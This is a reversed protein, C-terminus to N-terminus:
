KVEKLKEIQIQFQEENLAIKELFKKISNVIIMQFGQEDFNKDDCTVEIDEVNIKNRNDIVFKILSDINPTNSELEIDNLQNGFKIIIKNEM